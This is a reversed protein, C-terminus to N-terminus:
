ENYDEILQYRTFGYHLNDQSKSKIRYRRKNIEIIDDNNLKDYTTHLKYYKWQREGDSKIQLDTDTANQVMGKIKIFKKTEQLVFDKLEKKIVYCYIWSSWSDVVDSMNPLNPNNNIM